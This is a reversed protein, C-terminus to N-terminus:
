DAPPSLLGYSLMGTNCFLALWFGSARQRRRCAHSREEFPSENWLMPIIRSGLGLVKVLKMFRLYYGNKYCTHASPLREPAGYAKHIQFRQPVSICQLAKFGELPV